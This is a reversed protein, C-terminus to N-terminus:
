EVNVQAAKGVIAHCGCALKHGEMVVPIGDMRRQPHGEVFVFRGQHLACTATDGVVAVTHGNITHTDARQCEVVTGGGTTSDGLCIPHMM